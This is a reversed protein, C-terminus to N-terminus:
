KKVDEAQFLNEVDEISIFNELEQKGLNEAFEKLILELDKRTEKSVGLDFVEEADSLIKANARQSLTMEGLIAQEAKEAVCIENYKRGLACFGLQLFRMQEQFECGLERVREKVTEEIQIRANHFQIELEQCRVEHALRMQEQAIKHEKSLQDFRKSTEKSIRKLISRRQKYEELDSFVNYLPLLGKFSFETESMLGMTEAMKLAIMNPNASAYEQAEFLDKRVRALGEANASAIMKNIGIGVVLAAVTGGIVVGLPGLPTGITAGTAISQAFAGGGQLATITASAGIAGGYSATTIATTTFANQVNLQLLEDSTIKNQSFKYLSKALDYAVSAAATVGISGVISGQVISQTAHTALTLTGARGAGDASALLINKGAKIFDDKSIDKNNCLNVLEHTTSSILATVAGVKMSNKINHTLLDKRVENEHAYKAKGRRAEQQLDKSEPYGLPDGTVEVGNVKGRMASDVNDRTHQIAKAKNPGTGAPIGDKRISNVQERPAIKGNPYKMSGDENLRSLDARTEGPSKLYKTQYEKVKAAKGHLKEANSHLLIGNDVQGHGPKLISGDPLKDGTKLSRATSPDIGKSAARVDFSYTHHAESVLGHVNENKNLVGAKTYASKTIAESYANLTRNLQATKQTTNAASLADTITSAVSKQKKPSSKTSTKSKRKKSESKKM